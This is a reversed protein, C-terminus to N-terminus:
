TWFESSIRQEVLLKATFKRSLHNFACSRRMWALRFKCFESNIERNNEGSRIQGAIRRRGCSIGPAFWNPKRSRMERDGTGQLRDGIQKVCEPEATLTRGQLGWGDWGDNVKVFM